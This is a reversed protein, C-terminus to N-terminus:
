AIAQGTNVPAAQIQSRTRRRSELYQKLWVGLDATRRLQANHLVQDLDEFHATKNEQQTM